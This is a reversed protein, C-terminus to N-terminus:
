GRRGHDGVPLCRWSKRGSLVLDNSLWWLIRPDRPALPIRYPLTPHGFPVYIRVSVGAERAISAATKGPLGWLLELECETEAARLRRLAEGALAGDHTAVAVHGARGALRDVVELFGERLDREPGEPDRWRGKVVRVRLGLEVAADADGISRRWRAPLTVGLAGPAPACELVLALTPDQTEPGLSDCHVRGRGPPAREVLAALHERSYDFAPAKISLFTDVGAEALAGAAGLNMRAVDTASEDGANWFGVTTPLGRGDLWRCIALAQDLRPGSVYASAARRRLPEVKARVAAKWRDNL